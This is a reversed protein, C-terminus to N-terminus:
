RAELDAVIVCRLDALRPSSNVLREYAIGVRYALSSFFLYAPKPEIMELAIINFGSGAAIKRLTRRDNARYRTPFTDEKARGRRENFWAHFRSPTLMAGIAVYHYRNPTQLLLHAGPTMIRRLERFTALPRSLHEVVYRLFVLDFSRDAFPLHSLDGVVAADLSPNGRIGPDGDVGVM